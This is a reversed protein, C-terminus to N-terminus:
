QVESINNAHLLVTMMIAKKICDVTWSWSMVTIGATSVKDNSATDNDKGATDYDNDNSTTDYDNDNEQLIMTM